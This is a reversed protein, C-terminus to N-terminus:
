GSDDLINELKPVSTSSTRSSYGGTSKAPVDWNVLTRVYPVLVGQDVLAPLIANIEVSDFAKEYDVFTLVFPLRYERCVEIVRSVTQIHDMCTFGAQGQPQAEHLARAIRTLIIVGLTPIDSTEFEKEAQTIRGSSSGGNHMATRRSYNDRRWWSETFRQPLSKFKWYAAETLTEYTIAKECHEEDVGGFTFMGGFKDEEVLFKTLQYMYQSENAHKLFVTFVPDILQLDYARQFPTVVEETCLIPFGLGFVGDIPHETFYGTILEAQGFHAGPVILQNTGIGGFRVTDNGYFGEAEGNGYRAFHQPRKVLAKTFSDSPNNFSTLMIIDKLFKHIEEEFLKREEAETIYVKNEEETTLSESIKDLGSDCESRDCEPEPTPACSYDPVWVESSATDFVVEFSQEPTGITINGVYEIGYYDYVNVPFSPKGANTIQTRTEKMKRLEAKWTEKRMMQVMPSEIKTLSM